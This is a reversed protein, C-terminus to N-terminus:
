SRVTEDTTTGFGFDPTECTGDLTSADIAPPMPLLAISLM